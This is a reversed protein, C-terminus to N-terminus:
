CLNLSTGKGIILWHFLPYEVKFHKKQTHTHTHSAHVQSPLQLDTQGSCRLDRYLNLKRGSAVVQRENPWPKVHVHLSGQILDFTCYAM